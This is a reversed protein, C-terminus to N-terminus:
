RVAEDSEEDVFSISPPEYRTVSLGLAAVIKRGNEFDQLPHVYEWVVSGNPTVELIRGSTSEGILTNGNKLRQVGGRNYSGLPDGETGGFSWVVGGTGADIEIARSPGQKALGGQNDFLLIHGNPLMKADHQARWGGRLAWVIANTELDMVALMDMHKLSLLVNGPKANPIFRATREDLVFISNTHLPDARDNFPVEEALRMDKSAAIAKLISHSSLEKGESDLITVHDEIYPMGALSPVIPEPSPPQFTQTLAYIRTGVVELAHFAKLDSKWLIHSHKDLKLLPGGWAGMAQQEYIMLLDGNPFLYNGDIQPKLMGFLTRMEHAAEPMVAEASVSWRHLERGKMDVLHASLDPSIVYLTYGPQTRAADYRLVGSRDFRSPFWNGGASRNRLSVTLQITSILGNIRPYSSVGYIVGLGFAFVFLAVWRVLRVAIARRSNPPKTLRARATRLHQVDRM